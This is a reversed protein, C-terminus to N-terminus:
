TMVRKLTSYSMREPQAPGSLIKLALVASDPPLHANHETPGDFSIVDDTFTERRAPIHLLFKLFLLTHADWGGMGWGM